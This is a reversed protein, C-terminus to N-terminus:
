RSVYLIHHARFLALLHCIPNLNANLPNILFETYLVAMADWFITLMVKKASPVTRLKKVSPSDPHRNETSQRRNEPDYHHVWSEDGTAINQLFDDGKLRYRNLLEQAVTKTHEKM